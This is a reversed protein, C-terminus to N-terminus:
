FVSSKCWRLCIQIYKYNFLPCLFVSWFSIQQKKEYVSFFSFKNAILALFFLQRFIAINHPKHFLFKADETSKWPFNGHKWQFHALTFTATKNTTPRTTRSQQTTLANQLKCRKCNPWKNAFELFQCHALSRSHSPLFHLFFAVLTVTLHSSSADNRSLQFFLVCVCMPHQMRFFFTM